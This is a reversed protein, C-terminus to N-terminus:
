AGGSESVSAPSIPNNHPKVRRCELWQRLRKTNREAAVVIEETIEVQPVFRHIGTECGGDCWVYHLADLAINKRRLVENLHRVRQSLQDNEAVLKELAEHEPTKGEPYIIM